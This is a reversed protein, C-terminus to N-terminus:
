LVKLCQLADTLVETQTAKRGPVVAKGLVAARQHCTTSISTWFVRADIEVFREAMNDEDGFIVIKLLGFGRSFRRIGSFCCVVFFRLFFIVQKMRGCGRNESFKPKRQFGVLPLTRM